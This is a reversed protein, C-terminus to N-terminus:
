KGRRKKLFVFFFVVAALVAVAILIYKIMKSQEANEQELVGVKQNLVQLAQANAKKKKSGGFISGILGVVGSIIDM